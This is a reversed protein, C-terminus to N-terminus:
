PAAELSTAPLILELGHGTRTSQRLDLSSKLMFANDSIQRRGNAYHYALVACKEMALQSLPIWDLNDLLSTYHTSFRFDNTALRAALKKVSIM